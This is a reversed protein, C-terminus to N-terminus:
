YEMSMVLSADYEGAWTSASGTTWAKFGPYAAVLSKYEKCWKFGLPVCIKQPAKGMEASLEYSTVNGAEDIKKVIVPINILGNYKATTEFYYPEATADAGTNIMRYLGKADKANDAGLLAEHVEKGAVTLDLTGGAALLTIETKGSEWVKAYFVADNFDFDGITGLDECIIVGEEKVKDVPDDTGKVIKVIWDNYIYDRAVQENPNQGAAEFDFGVYYEGDIEVMRFNYFVHGNDTSSKFGFRQTSSNLMLMISGSTGNFNNIHDDHVTIVAPQYNYEPLGYVTEQHGVPDYACLWDMQKGGVVTGGNGATYSATGTYVQQVFFCDWDVLATQEGRDEVNFVELVRAIEDETIAKPVTYGESAWMNSNTYASRTTSAFGWTQNAAPQGFQKVFANSYLVKTNDSKYGGSSSFDKDNSCSTLALAAVVFFLIKKMM